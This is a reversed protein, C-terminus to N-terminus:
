EVGKESVVKNLYSDIEKCTNKLAIKTKETLEIHKLTPSISFRTEFVMPRAGYVNELFRSDYVIIGDDYTVGWNNVLTYWEFNRMRKSALYEEIKKKGEKGLYM